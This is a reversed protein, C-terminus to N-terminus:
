VVSKRDELGAHMAALALIDSTLLTGQGGVGVLSINFISNLPSPTSM